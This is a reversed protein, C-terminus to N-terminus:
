KNLTIKTVTFSEAIFYAGDQYAKASKEIEKSYRLADADDELGCQSVVDNSRIPYNPQNPKSTTIRSVTFDYCKGGEDKSCSGFFLISLLLLTTTKM